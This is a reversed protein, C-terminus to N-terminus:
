LHMMINVADVFLYIMVHQEKILSFYFVCVCLQCIATTYSSDFVQKLPAIPFYGVQLLCSYWGMM